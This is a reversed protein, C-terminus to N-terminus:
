PTDSNYFITKRNARRWCILFSIGSALLPGGMILMAYVKNHGASFYAFIGLTIAGITIITGGIGERWWAVVVGVTLIIFLVVIVISEWTWPEDDSFASGIGILLFFAMFVSGITRAFRRLWKSLQDDDSNPNAM